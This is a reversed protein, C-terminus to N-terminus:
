LNSKRIQCHIENERSFRVKESHFSQELYDHLSRCYLKSSNMVFSFDNEKVLSRPARLMMGILIWVRLVHQILITHTHGVQYLIVFSFKAHKPDPHRIMIM